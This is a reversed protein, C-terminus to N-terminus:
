SKRMTKPTMLSLSPSTLIQTMNDLDKMARVSAVHIVADIDQIAEVFGEPNEFDGIQVFDLKERFEPRVDIMAKGKSLSRTAGRVKIGRSLLQDVVHAGIFGTAGTV